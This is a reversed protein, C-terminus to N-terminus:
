EYTASVAANGSGGSSLFIPIPGIPKASPMGTVCTVSTSSVLTVSTCATLGLVITLGAATAPLGAATITVTTGGM